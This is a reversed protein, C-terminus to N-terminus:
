NHKDDHTNDTTTPSQTLVGSPYIDPSSSAANDPGPAPASDLHTTAVPPLGTMAGRNGPEATTSGQTQTQADGTQAGDDGDTIKIQDHDSIAPFASSGVTVSSSQRPEPMTHRSTQPLASGGLFHVTATRGPMQFPKPRQDPHSQTTTAAPQSPPLQPQPQLQLANDVPQQPGMGDRKDGKLTAKKLKYTQWWSTNGQRIHPFLDWKDMSEEEDTTLALWAYLDQRKKSRETGEKRGGSVWRKDKGEGEERFEYSEPWEYIEARLRSGIWCQRLKRFETPKVSKEADQQKDAKRDHGESYLKRGIWSEFNSFWESDDCGVKSILLITPLVMLAVTYMQSALDAMGIAVIHVAFALWGISRMIFYTKPNLIVPGEIFVSPAVLLENPMWFTVAKSDSQIILVKTPKGTWVENKKDYDRPDPRTPRVTPQVNQIAKTQGNSPNSSNSGISQTEEPASQVTRNKLIPKKEDNQKQKWLEYEYRRAEYNNGTPPGSTGVAKDVMADFGIRQQGIVYARVIISVVMAMANAFGYWDKSLLTGAVLFGNLVFSIVLSFSIENKRSKPPTVTWVVFNRTTEFEQSLMWRTLWAALDTTHIGQSINYLNFGAAKETFRNGAVVYAGLLPLYELYASSVLRGVAANVEEAGLLTVLGLADIHFPTWGLLVKWPAWSTTSTHDAM